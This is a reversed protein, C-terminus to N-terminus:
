LGLTIKVALNLQSFICVALLKELTGLLHTSPRVGRPYTHAGLSWAGGPRNATLNGPCLVSLFQSNQSPRRCLANSCSLTVVLCNGKFPIVSIWSGKKEWIVLAVFLGIHCHLLLPSVRGQIEHFFLDGRPSWGVSFCIICLRLLFSYHFCWLPRQSGQGPQSILLFCIYELIFFWFGSM